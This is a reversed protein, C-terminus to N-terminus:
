KKIAVDDYHGYNTSGCSPCSNRSCKDRCWKVKCKSCTYVPVTGLTPVYNCRPCNKLYAM